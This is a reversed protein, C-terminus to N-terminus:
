IRRGAAGAACDWGDYYAILEGAAEETQQKQQIYVLYDGIKGTHWFADYAAQQEPQM